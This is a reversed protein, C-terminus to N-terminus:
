RLPLALLRGLPLREDFPPVGITISRQPVGSLWTSHLRDWVTLGSSFNANREADRASHHIGHVRPTAVLAALAADLRRPLRLNSHHFLVEAFTLRQWLALEGAGVGILLVQAIRWPVSAVFELCHFRVATTADLDLDVHHALHIRWLAPVRHLLVHWLYLTYDMLALALAVRLPRPLPLRRVLGVNRREVLATAPAVLPREVLRIVCGTLAAMALNRAIRRAGPEARRRLPRRRELVLVAAFAVALLLAPM